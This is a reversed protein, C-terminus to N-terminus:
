HKIQRLRTSPLFFIDNAIMDDISTCCQGDLCRWTYGLPGLLSLLGQAEPESHIGAVIAPHSRSLADRAGELARHGHGEVDLKIFDPLPIDGSDVLRDLRCTDVEITPIRSHWTEGEYLLHATTSFFGDYSLLRERGDQNSVACGYARVWPLRNRRIHLQLRALCQPDAEFAAVSGSPGTRRGLGIAYLGYHSGLDWCHKGTWDWLQELFPQTLPEHIGRWYATCPYLSWRAGRAIGKRVTVPLLAVRSRLLLHHLLRRLPSSNM